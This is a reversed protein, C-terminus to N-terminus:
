NHRLRVKNVDINIHKNRRQTKTSLGYFNLLKEDTIFLHTYAYLSLM